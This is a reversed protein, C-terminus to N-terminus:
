LGCLISFSFPSATVSAQKGNSFNVAIEKKRLLRWYHAIEWNAPKARMGAASKRIGRDWIFLAEKLIPILM